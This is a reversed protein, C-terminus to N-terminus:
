IVKELKPLLIVKLSEYDGEWSAGAARAHGGGSFESAIESVDVYNKARMSIKMIGDKDRIYIGVEVGEINRLYDVIGEGDEEIAGYEEFSEEPLYCVCVKGGFFFESRKIIEGNLMYRGYTINDFVNRSILSTDLNYELLEAAMLHAESNTNSHSFSGTDTVLGIYLFQAIRQDLKVNLAKLLLLVGCVAAAWNTDIYSLDAFGKNSLHHDIVFSEKANKFIDCRAGLRKIDACDVSIVLDSKIEKAKNECRIINYEIKDVAFLYRNQVEEELYIEAQKGLLELALKLSFAAGVSDGDASVHPLISITNARNVCEVAKSLNM